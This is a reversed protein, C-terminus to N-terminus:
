RNVMKEIKFFSLEDLNIRLYCAILFWLFLIVLSRTEWELEPAIEPLQYFYGDVLKVDPNNGVHVALSLDFTASSSESPISELFGELIKV